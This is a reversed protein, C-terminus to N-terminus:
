VTAPVALNEAYARISFGVDLRGAGEIERVKGVSSVACKYVDMPSASVDGGDLFVVYKEDDVAVEQRIDQGTKDAWCTLSSDAANLRGSVQSNFRKGLDPTQVNDATITWGSISAIEESIDVGADLETRTPGVAMDAVTDLLYVKTTGPLFYRTSATIPTAAM